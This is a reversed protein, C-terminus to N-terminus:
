AIDEIDQEKLFIYDGGSSKKKLLHEIESKAVPKGDLFWQAERVSNPNNVPQGVLYRQGNSKHERFLNKDGDVHPIPKHWLRSAEVKERGAERAEKTSKQNEYNHGLRMQFTSRKEIVIDGASKLTAQPSFKTITAIAGKRRDGIKNLIQTTNM